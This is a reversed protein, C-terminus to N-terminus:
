LHARKHHRCPQPLNSLVYAVKYSFCQGYCNGGLLISDCNFMEWLFFYETFILRSKLFLRHSSSPLLPSSPHQGTSSILAFHVLVLFIGLSCKCSSSPTSPCWTSHQTGEQSGQNKLSILYRASFQLMNLTCQAAFHQCAPSLWMFWLSRSWIWIGRSVIRTHIWRCQM